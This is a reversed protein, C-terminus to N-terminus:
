DEKMWEEKEKKTLLLDEVIDRVDSPSVPINYVMCDLYWKNVLIDVVRNNSDQCAGCLYPIDHEEESPFRRKYERITEEDYQKYGCMKCILAM